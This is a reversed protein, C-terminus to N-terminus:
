MSLYVVFAAKLTAKKNTMLVFCITMPSKTMLVVVSDAGVIYIKDNTLINGGLPYTDIHQWKSRSTLM